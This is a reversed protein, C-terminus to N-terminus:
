EHTFRQARRISLAMAGRDGRGRKAEVTSGDIAVLIMTGRLHWRWLCGIEYMRERWHELRRWATKYSVFTCGDIRQNIYEIM